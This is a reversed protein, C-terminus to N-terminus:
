KKCNNYNTVGDWEIGFARAWNKKSCISTNDTVWREDDMRIIGDSMNIGPTNNEDLVIESGTYISGENPHNQGYPPIGCTNSNITDWYDPCTTQVPPFPKQDNNDQIQLALFVLAVILVILAIVVVMTYFTSDTSEAM